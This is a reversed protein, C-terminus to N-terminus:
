LVVSLSSGLGGGDPLAGLAGQGRLSKVTWVIDVRLRAGSQRFMHVSHLVIGPCYISVQRQFHAVASDVLGGSLVGGDSSSQTMHQTRVADFITGYELDIWYAGM